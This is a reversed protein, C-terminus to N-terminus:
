QNKPTYREHSNIRPTCFLETEQTRRLYSLLDGIREVTVGPWPYAALLTQLLHMWDKHNKTLGQAPTM